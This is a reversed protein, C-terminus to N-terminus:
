NCNPFPVGCTQFVGQARPSGLYPKVLPNNLYQCLCPQQEKLETCCTSSPPQSSTIASYCSSLEFINCTQAETVMLAGFLVLFIAVFASGKAM